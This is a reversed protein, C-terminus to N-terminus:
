PVGLTANARAEVSLTMGGAGNGQDLKLLLLNKGAKLQVKVKDQGAQLARTVRHDHVKQGNLWVQIGDDSGIALTAPQDTASDVTAAFYYIVNDSGTKSAAALKAVDIEPVGTGGPVATTTGWGVERGGKGPYRASWDIAGASKEPGFDKARSDPSANPFPGLVKFNTVPINTEQLTVLFALLDAADQATVSKLVLEPMLSKEQKVLEVIQKRPIQVSTGEVTKLVIREDNQDHLFGAYVKGQETEVVYPIYEPAIGASPNMITELLAKREYKRGIQSLEPGIDAGKGRVRHCKNCAAAGSRLFVGEGRGADGQIALIQDATFSQGLTKPRQDPPIFKEYLLRVNVDPHEVAAAIARDALAKDLKKTDILRLLLVAGDSSGMLREILKTRLENPLKGGGALGPPDQGTLLATLTKVDRLTVLAALAAERVGTDKGTMAVATLEPSLKEFNNRVAADIAALQDAKNEPTEPLRIIKRLDDVFQTFGAAGILALAESRLPQEGLASRVAPELAADNKLATWAGGINLRVAALALKKVDIPAKGALLALVSKGADPTPTAALAAVLSQASDASLDPSALKSALYKTADQPKLVRVINVLRPSVPQNPRDVVASFVEAERGRAAIGLTELLFRDHGDYRDFLKVLADTAAPQKSRSIALLTEKLVEGDQDAALPLLKTLYEDGHRRLIRVALARFAPDPSRLEQEVHARGKGGIRDLLWLARAKVNRDQGAVLKTLEPIAQEGSALLRERALFTTARNPSALAVLAVGDNTYPGPKDKRTPKKGKPTIRYIRGRTLDNYAHGGVGGDYWDTVFISGDPAVCPDIPRFYNDSSTVINEQGAKYGVGPLREPTYSRIERPGPDCHIITNQYKSGFADGEYFTMGAPSGFGTILVYPVFGPKDARWHHIPDFSGDPNRINEPAGFWGYNGGELIWCIRVSKLGDNDNDSCWVNGFSDVSLEVPNRFNVAFDELQAGDAECRIMGGWQFKINKGDPGTVNYSTDGNTMYLKHDPGFVQSHVGHDHNKGGFGTLLVQRPGDPVLDNNKDEYVYLNPSEPVYIKSGAVCVGMAANLDSTFVTMKDAVGDGDTDELVKIKDDPPNGVNRRYKTGETVWVRGYTDVDVAIPNVIMPESAFLKVDFGDAATISDVTQQPTKQAEAPGNLVTFSLVAAAFLCRSASRAHIRHLCVNLM